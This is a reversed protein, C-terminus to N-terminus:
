ASLNKPCVTRISQRGASSITRMSLRCNGVLLHRLRFRSQSCATLFTTHRCHDSWYTDLVRLETWTPDRQEQLFYSRTFMLDSFSMALGASQWLEVLGADDLDIFGTVTEIDPPPALEDELSSPLGLDAERSEVPNILWHRIADLEEAAAQWDPM